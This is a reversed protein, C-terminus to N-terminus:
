PNDEVMPPTAVDKVDIMFTELVSENPHERTIKGLQSTPVALLAFNWRGPTEIQLQFSGQKLSPGFAYGPRDGGLIAFSKIRYKEPIEFTFPHGAQALQAEDIHSLNEIVGGLSVGPLKHPTSQAIQLMIELPYIDRIPTTEMEKLLQRIKNVNGFGSVLAVSHNITQTRDLGEKRWHDFLRVMHGSAKLGLDEIGKADLEPDFFDQQGESRLKSFHDADDNIHGLLYQEIMERGNGGGFSDGGMSTNRGGKRSVANATVTESELDPDSENITDSLDGGGDVSAQKGRRKLNMKKLLAADPGDADGTVAAGEAANEANQSSQAKEQKSTEKKAEQKAQQVLSQKFSGTNIRFQSM